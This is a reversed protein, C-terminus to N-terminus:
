AQNDANEALISNFRKPSNPEVYSSAIVPGPMIKSAENMSHHFEYIRVFGTLSEKIENIDIYNQSWYM